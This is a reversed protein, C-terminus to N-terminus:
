NPLFLQATHGAHALLFTERPHSLNAPCRASEFTVCCGRLAPLPPLFPLSRQGGIASAFWSYPQPQRRGWFPSPQKLIASVDGNLTRCNASDTLKFPTALTTPPPYLSRKATAAIISAILRIQRLASTQDRTKEVTCHPVARPYNNM